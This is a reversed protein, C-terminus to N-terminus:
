VGNVRGLLNKPNQPNAAVMTEMKPQNGERSVLINPGVVIRPKTAQGFALGTLSGLGLLSCILRYAFKKM